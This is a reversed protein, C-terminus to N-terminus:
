LFLGVRWGCWTKIVSTNLIREAVPGLAGGTAFASRILCRLRDCGYDPRELVIVLLLASADAEVFTSRNNTAVLACTHTGRVTRSFARADGDDPKPFTRADPGTVSGADTKLFADADARGDAGPLDVAPM